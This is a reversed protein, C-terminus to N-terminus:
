INLESCTIYKTNPLNLQPFSINRTCNMHFDTYSFIKIFFKCVHFMTFMNLVIIDVMCSDKNNSFIVIKM